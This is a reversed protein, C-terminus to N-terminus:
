LRSADASNTAQSVAAAIQPLSVKENTPGPPVFASAIGGTLSLSIAAAGIFSLIRVPSALPYEATFNRM